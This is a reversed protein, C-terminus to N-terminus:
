VSEEQQIQLPQSNAVDQLIQSPLSRNDGDVNDRITKTEHLEKVASPGSGTSSKQGVDTQHLQFAMRSKLPKNLTQKDLMLDGPIEHRAPVTIDAARVKRDREMQYVWQILDLPQYRDRHYVGRHPVPHRSGMSVISQLPGEHTTRHPHYTGYLILTVKRLWAGSAEEDSPRMCSRVTGKHDTVQLTWLGRPQEGWCHVTMLTWNKLGATSADNPRTDLLLSVTGAPSELSVSLDGRCVTSISVKVQVHELTNIENTRWRCADSQINVSVVGGPSVIRSPHLTVEQMCKRQPAVTNFRAAQQVMLGADLLGFGYRHHVHYGAANINWGPEKPDPIKATKAILHQVDRWTLKPNVELVLALIGAAIPAASSTGPFHTVCGDDITTVTVLPLPGGVGAGTLTVAMVGPCPEGFFTPKGTQSVAGIAVTYISNVYGDAGCHDRQMGGNGAAWVFVSGKGGRGKRTGLRLAQATLSHPGDMAAGDDRPGWSCVYIDIFPINFTLATAEMADTVSGDLLRIGGIRANFAIGVGCYSNNAEMAVEGACRTGHSNEEDRVPMPDHSLGHSSRLDFSALAEFNKKLDKNTHDVGDDIISVVVGNGTINNSWVPMVNLDFGSSIYEGQAFLEWQMPWLPDNFTLSQDSENEEPQRDTASERRQSSHTTSHDLGTVPVRKDRYHSHQRQVRHVGLTTSLRNEFTARDNRGRSDRLTYLGELSGVQQIFELGHQEALARAASIGGDMQVAYFVHRNTGRHGETTVLKMQLLCCLVLVVASFM